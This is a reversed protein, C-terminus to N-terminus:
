RRRNKKRTLVLGTIGLFLFGAGVLDLLLKGPLRFLRGSHLDLLVREVSVGPGRWLVHLSELEPISADVKDSWDIEDGGNWPDFRMMDADSIYQRGNGAVVVRDRLRGIREIPGDLEAGLDISEILSGASTLVHVQEGDAVAIMAAVRVMGPLSERGAIGYQELLWPSSVHRKDLGLETAHNLAIGSLALLTLFLFLVIGAWRHVRRLGRRRQRGNGNHGNTPRRTSM